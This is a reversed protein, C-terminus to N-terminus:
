LQVCAFSKQFKKKESIFEELLLKHTVANELTAHIHKIHFNYLLIIQIVEKFFIVVFVM